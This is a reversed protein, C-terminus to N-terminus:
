LAALLALRLRFFRTLNADFTVSGRRARGKDRKRRAHESRATLEELARGLADEDGAEGDPAIAESLAAGEM